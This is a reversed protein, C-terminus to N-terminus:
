LPFSLYLTDNANASTQFCVKRVKGKNSDTFCHLSSLVPSPLRNTQLIAGEKKWWEVDVHVHVVVFVFVVQVM